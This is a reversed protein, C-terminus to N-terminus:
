SESEHNRQETPTRGNSFLNARIVLKLRLTGVSQVTVTLNLRICAQLPVSGWNKFDVRTKLYQTILSSATM